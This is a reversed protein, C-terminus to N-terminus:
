NRLFKFSEQGAGVIFFYLGEVYNEMNITISESSITGTTILKGTADIIRYSEGIYQTATKINLIDHVPNPFIVISKTPNNESLSTTSANYLASIEQRTLARNWICIDDIKGNFGCNLPYVPPFDVNGVFINQGFSFYKGSASQTNILTDDIFLKFTGTDKRLVANHWNQVSPIPNVVINAAVNPYNIALSGHFSGLGNFYRLNISNDPLSSNIANVDQQLIESFGTQNLEANFWVSITLTSDGNDFMSPLLIHNQIGDFYYASNSNGFRDSTLTAGNVTGTNGNGSEDNANGCFPWYGVLDSTLTGPLPNCPPPTSSSYLNSIEQTNLARNWIGIDDLQGLYPFNLTNERGGVRIDAAIQTVLSSSSNSIISDDLYLIDTTANHVLIIHHWFLDNNINNNFTTCGQLNQNPLCYNVNNSYLDIMWKGNSWSGGPMKAITIGGGNPERRAWISITFDTSSDGLPNGLNIYDDVGDFSYATNSNGLRDTTLIAGNVTGNFGNGSEDNANGNFPYWGVLGNTPVYNPIQAEAPQIRTIIFILLALQLTKKM